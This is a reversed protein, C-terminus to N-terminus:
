KLRWVRFGGDVRRITGKRKIKRLETALANSKSRSVRPNQESDKFFVSDSIEMDRALRRADGIPLPINKEIM